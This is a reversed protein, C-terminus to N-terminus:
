LMNDPLPSKFGQSCYKTLLCHREDKTALTRSNCRIRNLGSDGRTRRRGGLEVRTKSVDTSVGRRNQILERLDMCWVPM